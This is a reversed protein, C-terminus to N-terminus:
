NTKMVLCCYFVVRRNKGKRPDIFTEFTGRIQETIDDLTLVVPGFSASM